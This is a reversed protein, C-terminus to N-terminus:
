KVGIARSGLTDKEYHIGLNLGFPNASPASLGGTAAIRRVRFLIVDGIKRGTGAITASMSTDLHTRDATNAAITTQGTLLTNTTFVGTNENAITYEVEWKVARADVDLGNTAWHIHIELATGEKYSHLLEATSELYDDVAFGYATLNGVFSQWTPVNSTGTKGSIM